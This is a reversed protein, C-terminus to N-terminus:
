WPAVIKMSLDEAVQHLNWGIDGRLLLPHSHLFAHLDQIEEYQVTLAKVNLHLLLGRYKV